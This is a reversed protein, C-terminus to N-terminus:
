QMIVESTSDYDYNGPTPDLLVSFGYFRRVGRQVMPVAGGASTRLWRHNCEARLGVSTTEVYNLESRFSWTGSRSYTQSATVSEPRPEVVGIYGEGDNQLGTEYGAVLETEAMSNISALAWFGL